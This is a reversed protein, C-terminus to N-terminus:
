FKFGVSARAGGVTPSAGLTFDRRRLASTATSDKKKHVFLLVTFVIAGAALVAGGALAALSGTYIGDARNCVRTVAANRVKGDNMPSDRAAACLDEEDRSIDNSMSEDMVSKDVETLLDDRLKTRLLAQMVAGTILAAGGVGATVGLGIKKWRPAPRELGWEYKRDRPADDVEPDTDPTPELAPVPTTSPTPEDDAEEPLLSRIIKAATDDIKEPSLEAATVPVTTNSPSGATAVDLLFLRVKYGGGSTKKLDGYVLQRVEIAKGGEALCSESNNECGMTLRMEVLSMEPGGSLGRKAAAKRLAKTLAAGAAADDSELGLVAAPEELAALLMPAGASGMMPHAMPHAAASAPWAVGLAVLVSLVPSKTRRLM